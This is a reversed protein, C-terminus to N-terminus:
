STMFSYLPDGARPSAPRAHSHRLDHLRVRRLGSAKIFKIFASSLNRPAWPEYNPQLCVHTEETQRIGLRLLEEAQKLRHRRLEEIALSPLAVTRARGSKPPKLRVGSLQERCSLRQARSSWCGHLEAGKANLTQECPRPRTERVDAGTSSENQRPRQPLLALSARRARAWPKSGGPISAATHLAIISRM